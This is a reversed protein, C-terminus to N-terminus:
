IVLGRLAPAMAQIPTMIPTPKVMAEQPVRAGAPAAMAAPALAAVTAAPISVMVENAAPAALATMPTAAMTVPSSPNSLAVEIRPYTANPVPNPANPSLDNPLAGDADGADDAGDAGDAGDANGADDLVPLIASESLRSM